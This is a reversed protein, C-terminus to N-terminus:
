SLTSCTSMSSSGHLPPIFERYEMSLRVGEERVFEVIDMLSVGKIWEKNSPDRQLKFREKLINELLANKDVYIVYWVNYNGPAGTNYTSLRSTFASFIDSKQTAKGVKLYVDKYYQDFADHSVIYVVNGKEYVDRKRRKLLTSYKNNITCLELDKSKLQMNLDQISKQYTKAKYEGSKRIAPLVESTVWRKFEKATPLKSRLILSYLGSENILQTQPHIQLPPIKGGKSKSAEKWSLKDDADVHEQVAKKTDKYGLM